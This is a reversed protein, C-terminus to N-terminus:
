PPKLRYLDWSEESLEAEEDAPASEMQLFFLSKGDPSWQLNRVREPAHALKRHTGDAPSILWLSYGGVKSESVAALLDYSPHVAIEIPTERLDMQELRGTDLDLVGLFGQQDLAFFGWVEQSPNAAVFVLRRSSPLRYIPSRVSVQLERALPLGRSANLDEVVQVWATEEETRLGILLGGWLRYQLEPVLEVPVLADYTAGGRLPVAAVAKYIRDDYGEVVLLQDGLWVVSLGHIPVQFAALEEGDVANFIFLHLGVEQLDHLLAVREGGPSFAVDLPRLDTLTLVTEGERELLFTALTIRAQTRGDPSLAIKRAFLPRAKPTPDGLQAADLYNHCLQGGHWFFSSPFPEGSAEDDCCRALTHLGRDKLDFLLLHRGPTGDPNGSAQANLMVQAGDPSLWFSQIELRAEPPLSLEERLAEASVVEAQAAAVPAPPFIGQLLFVLCLTKLGSLLRGM